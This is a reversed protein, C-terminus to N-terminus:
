IAEKGPLEGKDQKKDVEIKPIAETYILGIKAAHEAAEVTNDVIVMEIKEPALEKSIEIAIQERDKLQVDRIYIALIRGPFKAVVERYIKPDDQGSDGILVFNLAPYALLINKIESFKHGM